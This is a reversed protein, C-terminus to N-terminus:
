SSKSAACKVQVQQKDGTVGLDKRWGTESEAIWFGARYKNGHGRDELQIESPLGLLLHSSLLFPLDAYIETAEEM